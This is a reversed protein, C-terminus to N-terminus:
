LREESPSEMSLALFAKQHTAADFNYLRCVLINRPRIVNDTGLVREKPKETKAPYSSIPVLM